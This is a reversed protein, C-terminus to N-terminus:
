TRGEPPGATPSGTSAAVGRGTGAAGRGDVTAPQNTTLERPHM